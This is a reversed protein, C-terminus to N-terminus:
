SVKRLELAQIYIAKRRSAGRAYDFPLRMLLVKLKLSHKKLGKQVRIVRIERIRM